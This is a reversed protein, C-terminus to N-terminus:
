TEESKLNQYHSNVVLISYGTYICCSILSRVILNIHAANEIIAKILFVIASCIALVQVVIWLLILSPRRKYVGILMLVDFICLISLYVTTVILTVTGISPIAGKKQKYNGTADDNPLYFILLITLARLGLITFGIIKSGLEVSCGCLSRDFRPLRDM